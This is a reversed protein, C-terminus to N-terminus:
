ATGSSQERCARRFESPATGVIKKFVRNFSARSNFGAESGIAALTYDDSSTDSLLAKAEEVRYTNVFDAFNMGMRENIVQSLVHAPMSLMDALDAVHLHEQRYPKEEAMLARLRAEYADGQTDDIPARGRRLALDAMATNFAEPLFFAAVAVIQIILSRTLSLSYGLTAPFRQTTALIVVLAVSLAGYLFIGAAFSRLWLIHRRATHSYESELTGAARQIHRWALYLFGLIYLTQVIAWILDGLPAGTSADANMNRANEVASDPRIGDWTLQAIRILGPALTATLFLPVPLKYEPELLARTYFYFLAGIAPAALRGIYIVYPTLEARGLAIFMWYAIVTTNGAVTVALLVNALRRGRPNALLAAAILLGQITGWSLVISWTNLM